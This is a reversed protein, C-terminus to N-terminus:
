AGPLYGQTWLLEANLIAGGAAGRITNSGMAVMKVDLIEDPRIRGVTITMGGGLGVDRRPQPRDPLTTVVIPHVPRSPLGVVDPDGTWNALADSVQKPTAPTSLGVSMCVTHGHEVPVRNTHATVRIPASDIGGGNVVGLLKAIEAQMKPEEGDIFPIVNGLIDLSAVGPYGAGSVAQMTAVFLREVGFEAHVPALALATVTSSCNANTVIAGEWGLRKRQAEIVAIHAANIEPILLPVDPEMRHNRANSCVIRGDRAFAQEIGGAVASDLASFVIASAVAEPKCEVVKLSAVATPMVGELWHTADAYNKGASRESAAVEAVAFWPHNELLRIFTQGVAGTAGLVAVPIRTQPPNRRTM